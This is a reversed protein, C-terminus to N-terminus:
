RQFLVIICDAQKAKDQGDDGKKKVGNDSTGKILLWEINKALAYSSIGLGEMEIGVAVPYTNFYKKKLRKKSVVASSSIMPKYLYKCNEDKFGSIFSEIANCEHLHENVIGYYKTKIEEKRTDADYIKKACIVTDGAKKEKSACCGINVVYKLNKFHKAVRELKEMMKVGGLEFAYFFCIHYGNVIMSTVNIHDVEFTKGVQYHNEDIYNLFGKKEDKNVVVILIETRNYIYSDQMGM